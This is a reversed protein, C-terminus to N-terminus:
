VPYNINSGSQAAPVHFNLRLSSIKKEDEQKSVNKIVNIHFPVMQGYIPVIVSDNKVDVYIQNKKLDKPLDNVSRYTNL